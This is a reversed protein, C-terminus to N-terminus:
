QMRRIECVSVNTRIDRVSVDYPHKTLNYGELALAELFPKAIYRNPESLLILGDPKVLDKFAQRLHNFQKREYAVDSALLVDFPKLESSWRWDFAQFIINKIGNLEANKNAFDVADQLYDTATVMGGSSAAVMSPLGLGCGIELVTKGSTLSKNMNLHTALGVASPWLEAWYPIREDAVEESDLGQSVLRDYLEDFNTVSQVVYSSDGINIENQTVKFDM